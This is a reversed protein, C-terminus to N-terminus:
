AAGRIKKAIHRPVAPKKKRQGAKRIEKVLFAIYKEYSANLRQVMAPSDSWECLALQHLDDIQRHELKM